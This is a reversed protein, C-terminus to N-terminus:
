YVHNQFQYRAPLQEVADLLSVAVKRLLLHFLKHQAQKSSELPHVLLPDHMAIELRLVDHHPSTCRHVGDDHIIPQCRMGINLLVQKEPASCWSIHRRFDYFQGLAPMDFWLAIDERSSDDEM